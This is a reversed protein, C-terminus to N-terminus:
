EARSGMRPSTIGNPSPGPASTGGPAAAQRPGGRRAGCVATGSSGGVSHRLVPTVEGPTAAVAKRAKCM